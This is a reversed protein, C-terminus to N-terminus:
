QYWPSLSQGVEYLQHAVMDRDELNSGVAVAAGLEWIRGHM